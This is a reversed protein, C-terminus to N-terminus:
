ARIWNWTQRLGEELSTGPRWSLEDAAKSVDLVSRQLEGARASVHQKQVGPLPAIAGRGSRM